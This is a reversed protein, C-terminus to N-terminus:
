YPHYYTEKESRMANNETFNVAGSRCLMNYHEKMHAITNDDFKNKFYEIGCGFVQPDLFTHYFVYYFLREAIFECIEIKDKIQFNSHNCGSFIM